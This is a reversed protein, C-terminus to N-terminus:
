RHKTPPRADSVEKTLTALDHWWNNARRQVILQQSREVMRWSRDRDPPGIEAVVRM